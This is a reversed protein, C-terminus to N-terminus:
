HAREWAEAGLPKSGLQRGSGEWWTGQRGACKAEEPGELSIAWIGSSAVTDGLTAAM